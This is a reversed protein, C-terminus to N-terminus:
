LFNEGRLLRLGELRIIEPFIRKYIGCNPSKGEYRGASRHASLPCGGACWHKWQCSQCEPKEDIAPNVLGTQSKRIRELPDPDGANTVTKHIEMQCKAINGSTDFVLYSHGANCPRKRPAFFSAHDGLSGLLSRRSPKSEDRLFSKEFREITKYAALMGTVMKEEELRLETRSSTFRNERYFNIRFPLDREMIWDLVEPLGDVTHSGVTISIGPVLGTDLAMNIANSVDRFSGSGDPYVRCRDHFEQPGDLSVVLRLGLDRIRRVMALTLLTGNSLIVGELAINDREALIGAYDHLKAILDFGLLPEGGGYKLQITKYGHILASRFVADIAAKGTEQSMDSQSRPLYCYDCRLNCRDTVHLWASLTAPNEEFEPSKESDPVLLGLEILQILTSHVTEENRCHEWLLEASKLSNGAKFHCLLDSAPSNLASVGSNKGLTASFGGPLPVSVMADNVFYSEHGLPFPQSFLPPNSLFCCDCQGANIMDGANREFILHPYETPQIPNVLYRGVTGM